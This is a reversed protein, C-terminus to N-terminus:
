RKIWRHKSKNIVFQSSGYPLLHIEPLASENISRYLKRYETNLDLLGKVISEQVKKELSTSAKIGNKLEVMIVFNQKIMDKSTVIEAIYKGTIFDHIEDSELGFKIHEPYINLAYFTVSVDSRGLLALFQSSSDEYDPAKKKLNYKSLILNIKIKDFLIGRDSINYKVLPIGSYTTFVLEENILEFYVNDPYYKVLTPLFSVDGFFEKRFEKNKEAHRRIYVTFPTEHGLAGADATGYIAVSRDLTDEVGSLKYLRRRWLESFNEGALIFRLDYSKMSIKNEKAHFVIDMLFPPYGAIIVTEFKPALDRLVSIVDDRDIGPTIISINYKKNKAIERISAMTYTGAIWTGMSFCIIVLTKKNGIKFIDKLIFEHFHAGKKEDYDGRPWYFPSGSSGSSSSFMVPYKKNPILDSLSYARLYNTKTTQPISSFYRSSKIAKFNVGNKNLFDKYAPVEKLTKKFVSFAKNLGKQM